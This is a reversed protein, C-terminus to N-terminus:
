VVFDEPNKDNKRINCSPCAIVINDIWNTGGKAIPIFHDAHYGTIELNCDCYFCVGKQKNYLELIESGTHFGKASRRKAKTAKKVAKGKPTKIYELSKQILISKNEEYYKRKRLKIIEPNDKRYKSIRVLVAKKNESYYNNSQQKYYEHRAEYAFKDKLALIEKNKTRWSKQCTKCNSQLKDKRSNDKNFESVVQILNCKLCLKQEM